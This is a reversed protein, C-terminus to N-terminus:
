RRHSRRSAQTCGEPTPPRQCDHSLRQASSIVAAGFVATDISRVSVRSRPSRETRRRETRSATRRRGQSLVRRGGPLRDARSAGPRRRPREDAACGASSPPRELRWLAAVTMKAAASRLRGWRPAATPKDRKRGTCPNWCWCFGPLAVTDGAIRTPKARLERRCNMMGSRRELLEETMSTSRGTVPWRFDRLILWTWSTATAGYHPTTFRIMQAM